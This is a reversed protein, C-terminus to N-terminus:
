ESFLNNPSLSIKIKEGKWVFEIKQAYLHMTKARKGYKSDGLISTGLSMMHVRLQHKRGTLPKLLVLSHHANIEKVVRYETIARQGKPDAVMLDDGDFCVNKLALDVVGSAEEPKGRVIAYYYKQIERNKFMESLLTATQRNKALLMLGETHRDLRHVIWYDDGALSDVSETIGPGGQSALGYPKNIVCFDVFDQVILESFNFGGRGSKHNKTKNKNVFSLNKMLIEDKALIRTKPKVSKGNVVIQKKRCAKEIESQLIGGDFMVRLFRDLRMPEPYISSIHLM